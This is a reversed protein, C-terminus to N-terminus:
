ATVMRYKSEDIPSMDQSLIAYAKVQEERTGPSSASRADARQLQDIIVEVRRQDAEYCIGSKKWSIIRNLIRMSEEEGSDPGLWHHKCEYAEDFIKQCWILQKKTGTSTFDDAHVIVSIQRQSQHFNCPSARRKTFGNNQLTAIFEEQWNTAADRTGYLRQNLRSVKGEDGPRRDEVPIEIFIPRGAKAFFHARKIDSSLVRYPEERHQNSACIALIMRLSELPPTTAFLEPRQDTKIERGILPARYGPNHEDGKNTDIWKTTIIKAGLLKAVSRDVKSHM